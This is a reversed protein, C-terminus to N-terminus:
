RTNRELGPTFQDIVSSAKSATPAPTPVPSGTSGVAGRISRVLPPSQTPLYPLDPKTM